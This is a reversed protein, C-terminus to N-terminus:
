LRGGERSYLSPGKAVSVRAVAMVLATMGDVKDPSKGKDIRHLGTANERIVVNRFMWRAIPNGGHRLRETLIADETEKTAGHMTAWQQPFELVGKVGEGELEAVLKWSQAPDFAVDTVRYRKRQEHIWAKVADQDVIPGPTLTVLGRDVWARIPVKSKQARADVVDEPLWFHWRAVLLPGHRHVRCAATFDDSKSLDVGIACPAKLLEDDAVDKACADWQELTLWSKVGVTWLNLRKRKFEPLKGPDNLAAQLDRRIGDETITEGINPNAKPWTRPDRIDDGDDLTCVFALTSDEVATGELVNVMAKEHQGYFSEPNAGRTTVLFRLPSIRAGMGSRMVDYLGSDPHAHLEDLGVFYPNFGDFEHDNRSLAAMSAEFDDHKTVLYPGKRGATIQVKRALSPELRIMAATQKWGLAAQAQQTAGFYVEAAPEGQMFFMYAAVIALVFTKGNKRGMTVLVEDFRRHWAGDSQRAQWGFLVYLLWASWASRASFRFRQKAWQRGKTHRCFRVAWRLVRLAEYEDFRWDPREGKRVAELDRANREVALRELRGVIRRGSLVDDVYGSVLALLEDDSQVPSM